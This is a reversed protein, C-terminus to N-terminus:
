EPEGEIELYVRETTRGTEPDIRQIRMQKLVWGASTKRASVVEFRRTLDGNWNHGDMRMLAGSSKDVWVFVVAYRADPTPAELRLMWCDRTRLREERELIPDPWYLFDLALEGREVPMGAVTAGRDAPLLKGHTGRELLEAGDRRLRLVLELPPDSEDFIYCIEGGGSLLRFPATASGERLRGELALSRGGASMRVSELIAEAPPPAATCLSPAAIALIAVCIEYANRPQRRSARNEQAYRNVTM